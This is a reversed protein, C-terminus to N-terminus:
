LKGGNNEVLQKSIMLGLGIGDSNVDATRYLKGFKTCLLEIESSDIGKGSDCIQVKLQGEAEDYGALIRIFGVQTFKM